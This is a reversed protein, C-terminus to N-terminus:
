QQHQVSPTFLCLVTNSILVIKNIKIQILKRSCLKCAKMQDSPYVHFTFICGTEDMPLSTAHSEEVRFSNLDFLSSSVSIGNYKTDHLDGVGLYTAIPGDIQYTFKEATCSNETVLVIGKSGDPLIDKFWSRWYFEVSIMGKVDNSSELLEIESIKIQEVNDIIPYFWTSMPEMCEEGPSIYDKFYECWPELIATAEPSDSRPLMFPESLVAKRHTMMKTLSSAHPTSYWDIYLFIFNNLFPNM